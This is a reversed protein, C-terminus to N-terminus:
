SAQRAAFDDDCLYTRYKVVAIQAKGANEPTLVVGCGPVPDHKGIMSAPQDGCHKPAKAETPAPTPKSAAEVKERAEKEVDVGGLEAKVLAEAEDAQDDDDTSMPDVDTSDPTAQDGADEAAPPTKEEVPTAVADDSSPAPTEKAPEDAPTAAKAPAAKKTTAKKAAAKKAPVKPEEVPGGKEDPGPVVAGDGEVALTELDRSKPLDDLGETIKNFIRWYDDPTFTVDTFRPLKNSRDRLTPYKPESHWRIQRVRMREGKKEPDAMYSQEMHGILDFDQFIADKIDGKLRAKQVLTQTEGDDETADKTHLNVVVNMPLNLIAEILGIMKGDLWGWDAWGSLSEKKEAKLREQILKRQYSDFTDIILTEYKRSAAPKLCERRLMDLAADMDGSTLVEAYPIGMSAVSLRGKECDLLLPKPWQAAFPTKGVGHDGMILAKLYAGGNKGLFDEFGTTKIILPM